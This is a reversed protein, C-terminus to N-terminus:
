MLSDASSARLESPVAGYSRRFMRNFYSVDGFGCDYAISSIKEGARRPDALMRRALALRQGLVYETFTTGELEFLRQVFRATCRQRAALASVSLDSRDLHGAIDQKIAHLRAMRVGRGQAMEAADRTAGITVVMLDCLHSVLLHQLDISALTQEQWAMSIYNTLLGLAPNDHPIRRLFGDLGGALRHALRSRPVRLVLLEGPARHTSELADTLSVMAAEGDGLVIEGGRQCIRHEGRPNIILGIDETPDGGARTRRYSAGQMRGSLLQIGPLAQLTLDIEIPDDHVPCADYRVGLRAFFESLRAPREYEPTDELALCLKGTTTPRSGLRLDSTLGAHQRSDRMAEIQETPRGSKLGYSLGEAKDDCRASRNLATPLNNGPRDGAKSKRRRFERDDFVVDARITATTRIRRREM